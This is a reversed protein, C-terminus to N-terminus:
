TFTIKFKTEIEFDGKSKKTEIAEVVDEIEFEEVDVADRWGSFSIDDPFDNTM